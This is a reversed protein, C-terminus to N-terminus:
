AVAELKAHTMRYVAHLAAADHLSTRELAEVLAARREYATEGVDNSRAAFPKIPMTAADCPEVALIGDLRTAQQSNSATAM